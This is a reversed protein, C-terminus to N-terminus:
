EFDKVMEQLKMQEKIHKFHEIARYADKESNIYIIKDIFTLSYRGAKIDQEQGDIIFHKTENNWELTNVTAWLRMSQSKSIFINLSSVYKGTYEWGFKQCMLSEYLNLNDFSTVNSPYNKKIYEDIDRAFQLLEENTNCQRFKERLPKEVTRRFEEVHTSDWPTIQKIFRDLLKNLYQRPTM